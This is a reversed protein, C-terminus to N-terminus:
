VYTRDQRDLSHFSTATSDRSLPQIFIMELSYNHLHSLYLSCDPNIVQVLYRFNPNSLCTLHTSFALRELDLLVLSLSFLFFFLFFFRPRVYSTLRKLM